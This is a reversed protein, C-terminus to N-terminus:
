GAGLVSVSLGPYDRLAVLLDTLRQADVGEKLAVLLAQDERPTLALAELPRAEGNVTIHDPFLQLFIPAGTANGGGAAASLEVESFRSFTSTLMFFLLLLFIVDVLSTMSIRKGPRRLSLM